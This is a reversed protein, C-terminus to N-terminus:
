SEAQPRMAEIVEVSVWYPNYGAEGERATLFLFYLEDLTVFPAVEEAASNIDPGMNMPTSWDGNADRFAIWLDFMGYGGSRNSAFISYSEDPAVFPAFDDSEGNIPLPLRVPAGYSEGEM